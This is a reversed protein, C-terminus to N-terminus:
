FACSCWSEAYTKGGGPIQEARKLSLTSGVGAANGAKGEM